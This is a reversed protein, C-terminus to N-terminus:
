KLYRRLEKEMRNSKCKNGMARDEMVRDSKSHEREQQFLIINISFDDTVGFM